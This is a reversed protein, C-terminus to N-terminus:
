LAIYYGINPDLLQRIIEEVSINTAQSAKLLVQQAEQTNLEENTDLPYNVEAGTAQEWLFFGNVLAGVAQGNPFKRTHWLKRGELHQRMSLQELSM